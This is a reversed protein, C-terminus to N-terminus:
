RRLPPRPTPMPVPGPPLPAIPQVPRPPPPGIGGPPYPYWPRNWGWTDYYGTGVYVSGDASGPISACGGLLGILAACAFPARKM